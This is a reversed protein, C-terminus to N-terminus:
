DNRLYKDNWLQAEIFAAQAKNHGLMKYVDNDYLELQKLLDNKTFMQNLKETYYLAMSDGLTFSIDNDAIEDLDIQIVYHEGYNESLAESPQISFYYPHKTEPKGGLECFMDYMWHEAKCRDEYYCEFEVGFRRHAKCSSGSYLQKALKKAEELPLETISKCPVSDKHRYNVLYLKM